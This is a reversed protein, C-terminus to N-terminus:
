VNRMCVICICLLVCLLKGEKKELALSIESIYCLHRLCMLLCLAYMNGEESVYLSLNYMCQMM